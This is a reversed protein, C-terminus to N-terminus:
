ARDARRDRGRRVRAACTSRGRNALWGDLMATTLGPPVPSGAVPRHRLGASGARSGLDAPAGAPDCDPRPAVPVVPRGGGPGGRRYPHRVLRDRTLADVYGLATAVRPLHGAGVRGTPGTAFSVEELVQAGITANDYVSWPAGMSSPATRWRTRSRSTWTRTTSGTRPCWSSSRWRSAASPSAGWRAWRPSMTRSSSCRVCRPSRQESGFTRSPSDERLGKRLGRLGVIKGKQEAGFSM